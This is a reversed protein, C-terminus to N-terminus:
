WSQFRARKWRWEAEGLTSQHQRGAAAAVAAAVAEATRHTGPCHDLWNRASAAM